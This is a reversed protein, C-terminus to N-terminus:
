CIQPRELVLKEAGQYYNNENLGAGLNGNGTQIWNSGTSHHIFIMRATSPPPTVNATPTLNPTPDSGPEAPASSKACSIFFATLLVCVFIIATNTEYNKM